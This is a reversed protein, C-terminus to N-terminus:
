CLRSLVDAHYNSCGPIARITFSFEQLALSWRLLRSNRAKGSKLFLLPKHDSELIFSRLALYKYFQGVAYIIALCEREITSYRTERPLLKRSAYKCPRLIGDRMQLLAAGIGYNSADSRVIFVEQGDPIILIPQTSLARKIAEFSAQYEQSWHIREPTGKRLLDTMPKTLTAFDPVFSRYYSVLGLLSRLNKKTSPAQLQIIKDIKQPMPSMTGGAVKHGLFEISPKAIVLKKPNVTLGHTRLTSLLCRLGEIHQSWNSTHLLTDDFYCVVNKMDALVLRMLQIFTAPGTMLGFPLKTWQMLGLPTQFATYHRCSQHVPIQWYAKSLDCSTFITSHSLQTFLDEPLPINTADQVTLANLKRFDIYLRLSGDKKRVLVIPSCYPSTSREIVGLELLSRVEAEVFAQAAFPIPYPKTRVITDSKLRILHEVTKTHGPRSTIVDAFEDLVEHVDALQSPSLNPSIEVESKVQTPPVTPMECGLESGDEENIIAAPCADLIRDISETGDSLLELDAVSSVLGTESSSSHLVDSESPCILATQSSLEEFGSRNYYKRLLNVHFSNAKRNMDVSYVVRTVKKLVKFPGRLSLTMKNAADPLLVLVDDGPSFTKLRSKPNQREQTALAVKDVNQQALVRAEEM